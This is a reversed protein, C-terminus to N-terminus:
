ACAKIIDNMCTHPSERPVTIMQFINITSTRHTSNYQFKSQILAIIKLTVKPTSSAYSHICRCLHLTKAMKGGILIVTYSKITDEDNEPISNEDEDRSLSSIEDKDSTTSSTENDSESM